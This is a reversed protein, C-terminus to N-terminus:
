RKRRGLGYGAAFVSALLPWLWKLDAEVPPLAPEGIPDFTIITLADRHNMFGALSVDVGAAELAPRIFPDNEVMLYAQYYDEGTSLVRARMAQAGDATQVTVRPEAQINKLWDSRSWASIVYIRGDRRRYELAVRRVKGSRRGIHTMILLVKGVVPGFGLRWLVIPLRFLKRSLKGGPYPMWDTFTGGARVNVTSEETM